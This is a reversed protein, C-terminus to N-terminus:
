EVYEYEYEGTRALAKPSARVVHTVPGRRTRETGGWVALARGTQRGLGAGGLAKPSHAAGALDAYELDPSHMSGWTRRYM